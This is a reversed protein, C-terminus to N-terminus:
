EKKTKTTASNNEAVPQAAPTSVKVILGDALSDSPNIIVQDSVALGEVIQLKTGLDRGITVKRLSVKGEPDVVGVTTGDSRFLLVNSPVLLAQSTSTTHLHVRAYAGPFLEGSTNPIQLETLLTRTGPDIAGATSVVKAPFKRGPFSEYTVDAPTGQQIYGAMGEPVNVYVRLPAVQSITFLASGSGANILAGIDTNRSTVIGDFPAHLVRFAQTAELQRVNAEDANATAQKVRLDGAQNDFDQQAIVHRNFLDKDRDYTSQSLWLAAQAQKLTAEAQAIQQDLAPTDIEALVDGAKVKTGIDSYWKKLYGNVQAFIPAQTYAQTQGPLDVTVLAPAQEPRVVSVTPNNTQDALKQLDETNASRKMVGIVGLVALAIFLIILVIGIYKMKGPQAPPTAPSAGGPPSDDTMPNAGMPKEQVQLNSQNNM